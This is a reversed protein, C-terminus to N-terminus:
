RGAIGVVSTGTFFLFTEATGEVGYGSLKWAPRPAMPHLGILGVGNVKVDGTDMQRGIQMARDEDQSYVYGGLGYPAQNALYVAEAETKFSHVTAVPGFTEELTQEPAVGTILAPAFFEGKTDPIPTVQHITGGLDQYHLIAELMHAKHGAHVLPGMQSAPSMSDGIKVEALRDQTVELLENQVNEHVILRGLARCWQGNLTTMGAIIGDATQELNADELVVMANNGGLELQMPKFEHACAQAVARGGKLGGTFSVCRIRKDNVLAAGIEAGGSVIQLVGAPLGVAEAAQALYVSSYPAFESAKLIAPCGVAIANAVKHAALAAPSNWPTICAAPGLPKHLVEVDGLEGELTSQLMGAELMQAAARFAIHTIFNVFSSTNIIIGTSLSEVAAIEGVKPELWDAMKHLYAIRDAVSINAWSRSQHIDWATQLAREVNANDTALQPQIDEGNNPNHNWRGLDVAPTSFEGAIYDQLPSITISSM